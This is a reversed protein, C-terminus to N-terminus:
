SVYDPPEKRYGMEKAVHLVEVMSLFSKRHKSKYACLAKLFDREEDTYDAGLNAERTKTDPIHIRTEDM